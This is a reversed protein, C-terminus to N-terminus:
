FLHGPDPPPPSAPPQIQGPAEIPAKGPSSDAHRKLVTLLEKRVGDLVTLVVELQGAAVAEFTTKLDDIVEIIPLPDSHPGPVKPTSVSREVELRDGWDEACPDLAMRRVHVHEIPQIALDNRSIWSFDERIEDLVERLVRIESSLRDVSNALLEHPDEAAPPKSPSGRRAM